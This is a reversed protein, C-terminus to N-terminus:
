EEILVQRKNVIVKGSLILNVSELLLQHEAQHIKKTLTELNDKQEISVIRQQIIPGTDMGEDVFHITIGTVKVGYNLAQEIADKGPFAPLVSPHLNIIKNSFASLLTEGVLRMYGALVILDINESLLTKVIIEEYEKKSEYGKAKFSFTSVEENKARTNVYANPRDSVLFKIRGNLRGSKEADVLSQFNSGNGSAFIAINKM